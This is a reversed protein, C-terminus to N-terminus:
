ADRVPHDRADRQYCAEPKSLIALVKSIEAILLDFDQPRLANPNLPSCCPCKGEIHDCFSSLLPFGEMEPDDSDLPSFWPKRTDRRTLLDM